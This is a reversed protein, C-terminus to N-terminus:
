FGEVYYDAIANRWKMDSDKILSMYVNAKKFDIRHKLNCYELFLYFGDLHFIVENIAKYFIESEKIYYKASGNSFLCKLRKRSVRLIGIADRISRIDKMGSIDFTTSDYKNIGKELINMKKNFINEDIERIVKFLICTGNLYDKVENIDSCVDVAPTDNLYHIQNEGVEYIYIFHDDRWLNANFKDKAFDPNMGALLCCSEDQNVHEFITELGINNCFEMELCRLDSGIDQIRPIGQYNEYGLEGTSFDKLVDEISIYSDCYLKDVEFGQNMLFWILYNEVCTIGMKEQTYKKQM